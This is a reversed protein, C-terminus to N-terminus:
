RFHHWSEGPQLIVVANRTKKDRKAVAAQFEKGAESASLLLPMPGTLGYHYPIVHKPKLISFAEAAQEPSMDLPQGMIRIGGVPLLAADITPFLESIERFMREDFRTDGAVYLTLSNAQLVYGNGPAGYRAPVATVIVSGIQSRDWEDLEVVDHYSLERIRAGLGRPVVVRLSTDPYKRLTEADFHYDHEDTILIGRMPPLNELSLGIVEAPGFPPTPSYWPDLLIKTERFDIVASGHVIRTVSLDADSPHYTRTREITPTYCAALCIAPVIALLRLVPSM